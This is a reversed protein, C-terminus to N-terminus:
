SDLVESNVEEPKRLLLEIQTRRQRYAVSFTIYWLSMAIVGTGCALTVMIGIVREYEPAWIDDYISFGLWGIWMAFLSLLGYLITGVIFGVTGKKVNEMSSM